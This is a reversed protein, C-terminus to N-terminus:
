ADGNRIADRLQDYLRAARDGAESHEAGGFRVAYHLRALEDYIAGPERQDGALTRAHALLPTGPPRPWGARELAADARRVWREVPGRAGSNLLRRGRLSPALHGVLLVGAFVGVGLAASRLVGELGGISRLALPKNMAGAIARDYTDGLLDSQARGDYSVVGRVWLNNAWQWASAFAAVIGTPPRHAQAVSGPPSADFRLWLGPAVHAEVWAHAHANRVVFTDDSRETTLYGTVVRAEIGAARSLAALASAFYECHGRRHAFLFAEVPDEGPALGPRDTTYAYNTRLYREFFRVIREDSESHRVDGAREIGQASLLGEAFEHVPGSQFARGMPPPAEFPRGLPEAVLTYSRVVGREVVVEGIDRDGRLAVTPDSVTLEFTRGVTFLHTPRKGGLVTVELRLPALPEGDVLRVRGREAELPLWARSVSPRVVGGVYEDLIAGRLYLQDTADSLVDDSLVRVELVPTFSEELAGSQNLEIEPNFGSVERLGSTGAGLVSPATMIGRPMVIFVVVMIMTSLAGSLVVGGSVARWRAGADRRGVRQEVLAIQLLAATRLALVLVVALMGGIVISSHMLAAGVALSANMCLLMAQDRATVRDFLKILILGGLALSFYEIFSRPDTSLGLLLLALILLALGALTGRSAEYRAPHRVRQAALLWVPVALVMVVPTPLSAALTALAAGSTWFISWGLREDNARIM